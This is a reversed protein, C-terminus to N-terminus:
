LSSEVHFYHRKGGYGSRKQNCCAVLTRAWHILKSHAQLLAFIRKVGCKNGHRACEGADRCVPSKLQQSSCYILTKRAFISYVVCQFFRNRILPSGWRM